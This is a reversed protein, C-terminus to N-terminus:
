KHQSFHHGCECYNPKSPKYGMCGCSKCNGFGAKVPSVPYIVPLYRLPTDVFVSESGFDLETLQLDM